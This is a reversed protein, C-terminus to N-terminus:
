AEDAARQYLDHVLPMLDNGKVVIMRLNGHHPHSITNTAQISAEDYGSTSFVAAAACFEKYPQDIPSQFRAVKNAEYTNGSAIFRQRLYNLSEAKRIDDKASDNVAKQLQDAPTAGSLNAKSEIITLADKASVDGENEFHFGIIDCGTASSDATPKMDWRLRPVWHNLRWELYDALLIESFDGSRIGPGLRTTRNPFKITELYDKRSMTSPKLTDIMGDSCYQNRFHTAWASLITADTTHNLELVQVDRGCATKLTKGTDVLWSLHAPGPM